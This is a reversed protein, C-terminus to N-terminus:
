ELKDPNDDIMDQKQQQIIDNKIEQPKVNQNYETFLDTLQLLISGYMQYAVPTELNFILTSLINLFEGLQNVQKYLDSNINEFNDKFYNLKDTLDMTKDYLAFKIFMDNTQDIQQALLEEESQPEADQPQEAGPDGEENDVKEIIMKIDDQSLKGAKYMNILDDQTLTGSKLDNALGDIDDPSAQQAEEPPLTDEEPIEAEEIIRRLVPNGCFDNWNM